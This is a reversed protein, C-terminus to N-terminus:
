VIPTTDQDIKFQEVSDEKAAELLTVVNDVEECEEETLNQLINQESDLIFRDIIDFTQIDSAAEAMNIM